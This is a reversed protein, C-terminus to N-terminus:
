TAPEARPLGPLPDRGLAQAARPDPLTYHAATTHITAHGLLRSLHQLSVGAKCGRQVAYARLDRFLIDPCGAAATATRWWDRGAEQRSLGRLLRESPSTRRIRQELLPLLDPHVPVANIQATARRKRRVARIVRAELDVQTPTLDVIVGRDLGTTAAIWVALRRDETDLARTIAELMAETIVPRVRAFRGKPVATARQVPNDTAYGRSIAWNFFRRLGRIHKAVTSNQSRRLRSRVFRDVDGGTFDCVDKDGCHGAFFGLASSYHTTTDRALSACGALFEAAARSLPLRAVDHLMRLERRANYQRVFREADVKRAFRLQRGIRKGVADYENFRLYYGPVRKGNELRVGNGGVLWANRRRGMPIVYRGTSPM